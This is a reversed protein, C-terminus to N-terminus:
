TAYGIMKWNILTKNYVDQIRWYYSKWKIQDISRCSAVKHSICESKMARRKLFVENRKNATRDLLLPKWQTNNGSYNRKKLQIKQCKGKRSSLVASSLCFSTPCCISTAPLWVQVTTETYPVNLQVTLGVGGRLAKYMKSKYSKAKITCQPSEQKDPSHQSCSDAVREGDSWQLLKLTLVHQLKEEM